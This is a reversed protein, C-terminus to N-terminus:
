AAMERPPATRRAVPALAQVHNRVPKASPTINSTGSGTNVADTNELNSTM